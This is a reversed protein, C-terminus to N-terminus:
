KSNLKAFEVTFCTGKNEESEVIITAKHLLVIHKVIALGLGTGGTQRSRAKDVVFFREFIRNQLNKPIGIGTDIIKVVAKENTEDIVVQIFGEDTYKVANTLLNVFVQELLYPDAVIKVNKGKIILKLKKAEIEPKVVNISGEMFTLLNLSKLELNQNNKEIKSLVLLDNVLSILRKSHKTIIKLYHKSSENTEDAYMTEAFGLIATLPTKLEHSANAVFDKKQISLQRLKSIDQSIVIIENVWVTSNLLYIGNTLELEETLDNKYNLAKKIFDFVFPETIANKYNIKKINSFSLFKNFAPNTQKIVGDFNITAIGINLSNILTQLENKRYNIEEFSQKIKANMTNFATALKKIEGKNKVEIKSSFDQNSIKDAAVVLNKIPKVIQKTLIISFVLFGILCFVVIFLVDHKIKSIFFEIDDDFVSLRLAAIIQGNQKVPVALYLMKRNLTASKRESIGKLGKLANKFESRNIHNEMKQPNHKSDALVLGLTDIVTLRYGITKSYTAVINQINEDIKVTKALYEAQNKLNKHLNQINNYRLAKFMFGMISLTLVLTLIFYSGFIKAFFTKM